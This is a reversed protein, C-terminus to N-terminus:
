SEATRDETNPTTYGSEEIRVGEIRDQSRLGSEEIRDQSRLGSEQIRFGLGSSKV